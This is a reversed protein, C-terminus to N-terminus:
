VCGCVCVCVCVCVCACVEKIEEPRHVITAGAARAIRNNDTKRLRRIASIGAQPHPPPTRTHTHAHTRTHTSTCCVLCMHHAHAPAHGCPAPGLCRARPEEGVPVCAIAVCM